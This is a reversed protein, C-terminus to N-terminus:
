NELKKLEKLEKKQREEIRSEEMIRIEFSWHPTYCVWENLHDKLKQLVELNPNQEREVKRIEQQIKEKQKM